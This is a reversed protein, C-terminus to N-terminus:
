VWCCHNSIFLSSYLYNLTSSTSCALCSNTATCESSLDLGDHQDQYVGYLLNEKELTLELIQAVEVLIWLSHLVRLYLLTYKLTWANHVYMYKMWNLTITSISESDMITEEERGIRVNSDEVMFSLIKSERAFFRSVLKSSIRILLSNKQCYLTIIM